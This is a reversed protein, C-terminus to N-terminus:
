RTIIIKNDYITQNDSTIRLFYLGEAFQSIDLTTLGTQDSTRQSLVQQGFTNFMKLDIQKGSIETYKITLKESTPNPFISIYHQNQNNFIGTTLAQSKFHMEDIKLASGINSLLSDYWMSSNIDVMVSDPIQGINFPIEMYQYSASLPLNKGANGIINGNKKFNLYVGATSGGVPAYKYWFALTDVQNSFPFGGKEQCNNQCNRDYWGTSIKGGEATPMNHREGLYTILEIANSGAKADSTKYAGGTINESSSQQFFWDNPKNITTTQWTEFDGNFLAPQSNVGTFAISDLQLMSGNRMNINNGYNNGFNSSGAAFIVTDPAMPLAPSFNFSFPTYTNHTGYFYFGYEGIMVGAKYFFAVVFGTDPSAIASKYYGRMGTAQQNYAFGGQWNAPNNSQPNINIFVGPLTDGGSIETTLKVAYNGHYADTSKIVNFPQGNRFADINSSWVYNQPIESTLTTWNEFNGNPISPTQANMQLAITGILAVTLLLKKKM